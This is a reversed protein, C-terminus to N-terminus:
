WQYTCGIEHTTGIDPELSSGINFGFRAYSIGIGGAFETPASKAGCRLFIHSGLGLELGSSVSTAEGAVKGVEFGFALSPNLKIGLGLRMAVPCEDLGLTHLGLPNRAELFLRLDSPLNVVLMVDPLVIGGLYEGDFRVSGLRITPWFALEGFDFCYKIEITDESYGLAALRYYCLGLRTRASKLYLWLGSFSIESIGFPKYTFIGVCSTSSDCGVEPHLASAKTSIFGICATTLSGRMSADFPIIEFSAQASPVFCSFILLFILLLFLAFLWHTSIPVHHSSGTSKAMGIKKYLSEGMCWAMAEGEFSLSRCNQGM